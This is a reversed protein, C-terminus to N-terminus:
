RLNETIYLRFSVAKTLNASGKQRPHIALQKKLFRYVFFILQGRWAEALPIEMQLYNNLMDRCIRPSFDQKM